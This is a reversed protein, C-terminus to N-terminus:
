PVEEQEMHSPVIGAGELYGFRHKAAYVACEKIKRLLIACTQGADHRTAAQIIRGGATNLFDLLDDIQEPAVYAGISRPSPLELKLHDKIGPFASCANGLVRWAPVLCDPAQVGAARCVTELGDVDRGYWFPVARSHVQLALFALDSELVSRDGGARATRALDYIKRMEDLLTRRFEMPGSPPAEEVPEVAGALRRDLRILQERALADVAGPSDADLYDDVAGAVKSASNDTIFFPRGDLHLDPELRETLLASLDDVQHELADLRIKIKKWIPAGDEAKPAAASELRYRIGHVYMRARAANERLRLSAALYEEPHIKEGAILPAIFRDFLDLNLPHFSIIGKM